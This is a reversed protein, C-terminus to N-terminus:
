INTTQISASERLSKTSNVESDPVLYRKAKSFTKLKTQDPTLYRKAKSCTKLKTQDPVLYREAKSLTKLKPRSNRHIGPIGYVIVIFQVCDIFLCYPCIFKCSKICSNYRSTTPATIL